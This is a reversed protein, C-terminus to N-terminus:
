LTPAVGYSGVIIDPIGDGTLDGVVLAIPVPATGTGIVKPAYGTASSMMWISGNLADTGVVCPKGNEVGFAALAGPEGRSPLPFRAAEYAGASGGHLLAVETGGAVVLDAFGDGDLDAAAIGHPGGVTLVDQRQFTGDTTGWLITLSSSQMNAVVIDVVGDNNFDTVAVSSPLLGCDYTEPSSLVGSLNKRIEVIGGTAVAGVSVIDPFADGDINAVVISRDAFSDYTTALTLGPSAGQRYLGLTGSGVVLIEDGGDLDLDAAVVGRAAPAQYSHASFAGAHPSLLVVSEDAVDSVTVLFKSTQGNFMAVARAPPAAFREVKSFNSGDIVTISTNYLGASQDSCGAFALTSLM